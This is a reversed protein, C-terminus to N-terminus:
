RAAGTEVYAKLRALQQGLVHDVAPALSDLGGKMYGGVYYIQTLTTKGGAADLRWVLHGSAGSNMLPGLAGDLIVTKPPASFIVTMHRVGGGPLTECLCGGPVLRLSLNKASKSWTHDSSWWAGIRGLADWVRAAPAAIEAKEEVQFGGPTADVVEARAAGTIALGAALAALGCTRM